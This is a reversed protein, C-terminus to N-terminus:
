LMDPLNVFNLEGNSISLLNLHKRGRYILIETKLKLGIYSSLVLSSIELL